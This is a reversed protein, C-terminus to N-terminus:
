YSFQDQDEIVLVVEESELKRTVLINGYKQQLEIWEAASAPLVVDQITPYKKSLVKEIKALRTQLKLMDPVKNGVKAAERKLITEARDYLRRYDNKFNDLDKLEVPFGTRRVIPVVTTSLVTVESM